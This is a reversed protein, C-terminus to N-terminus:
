AVVADAHGLENAWTAMVRFRTISSPTHPLSCVLTLPPMGKYKLEKGEEPSRAVSIIALIPSSSTQLTVRVGKSHSRVLYRDTKMRSIVPEIASGRRLEREIAGFVGCKTQGTGTCRSAGRRSNRGIAPSRVPSARPVCFTAVTWWM